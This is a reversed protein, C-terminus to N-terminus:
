AAQAVNADVPLAGELQARSSIQLKGFVKHLHYQVTRPSIFLQSGIEPNSLGDRALRAIQAEQATLDGSTRVTRKRITEGTALLERATREAFAESRMTMFMEHATRLQERADQRRRERRLWEGYLLHTRALEVRIRTRGLREIAERYLEEAVDGDSLLARSRAEVGLGWDTGTARTTESLRQLAHAATDPMGSRAAAEVLEPLARPPDHQHGSAERAAALAAEYRGLGNSLLAAAWQIVALGMGEGRRVVEKSSAEILKAAEAARGGCAAFLVPGYPALQSGTLETVAEAEELLSAAAAVKGAFLNAVSLSHLAVPLETLAGADRALEVLRVSLVHWSEDDWLEFAAHCALWLWRIGEAWSISESRFASLARKLLPAGADYGETILLVWGDLLLDPARAPQSLRPAARAAEAVELVGGGTALRHAFVAASLADLYTERALRVDLRELRKAADLLLPPADSGRSLAFAVQARVLDMRVRQLEDHPGAEVTALLTRAAEPAGAQHKAQAAALTREARGAAEPTLRAAQELFAAAAALGGRAHARGASRELEAAVEEDPGPAAHARHWVRRDPDVECETAEALAGHVQRREQPSTARYVASRVLPHRFRVRHGFEVLGAATAPAAVDAGIGLLEAARWLLAPEGLPEAAAIRLLRQTGAPLADIRRRFSEEIRGTLPLADPFGFGGALEDPTLGVPLELLALPNGRTEAVIRDRVREDIRGRIVSDLLERAEADRLGELTLEPLGWGPSPERTAVVVAVSEAGLRRAAFALAQASARDLWQADDIVCVLPREEAVESLLSLVALGVLFRDPADGSSLGFAVSLANRQPDPLRDLRDLMPQCLQHLGAFPLEMESQVGSARAVRCGVARESAYELLATKGLGPEGRVVLARSQGARVADVLQDLKERESWRGLLVEMVVARAAARRVVKPPTERPTSAPDWM